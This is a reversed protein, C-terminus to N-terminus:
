NTIENKCFYGGTLKNADFVKCMGCICMKNIDMECESKKKACFLKENNKENCATFLPCKGCICLSLNGQNDQPKPM